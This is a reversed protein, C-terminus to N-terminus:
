PCLFGGPGNVEGDITADNVRLVPSCGLHTCIGVAVFIDPHISRTANRCATPQKSHASIPDLLADNPKQLARVMDQTRRMIWVPKGQWAVVSLEGPRLGAPDFSVPAADAIARASPLLSAAFAGALAAVGAGGLAGTAALALRRQRDVLPARKADNSRRARPM